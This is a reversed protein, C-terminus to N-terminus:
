VRMALVDNFDYGAIPPMAIRVSRGESVWRRYAALANRQGAGSTDNDAAIVINRVESPLPITCLGGASVASWAPLGFIQAASIASEVGEAIILARDPDHEGLRIAGGHILGRCERQLESRPFDAKGSGDARLYTAHTGTLHGDIDVISAIM